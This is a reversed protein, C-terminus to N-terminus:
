RRGGKPQPPQLKQLHKTVSLIDPIRNFLKALSGTRLNEQLGSFQGPREEFYETAIAIAEVNSNRANELLLCLSNHLRLIFDSLRYHFQRYISKTVAELSHAEDIALMPKTIVYPYVGFMELCSNPVDKFQEKFEELERVSFFASPQEQAYISLHYNAELWAPEKKHINYTITALAQNVVEIESLLSSSKELYTQDLDGSTSRAMGMTYETCVLQLLLIFRVEQQEINSLSSSIPQIMRDRVMAVYLLFLSCKFEDFEEPCMVNVMNFLWSNGSDVLIRALEQDIDAWYLYNEFTITTYFDPLLKYIDKFVKGEDNAQLIGQVRSSKFQVEGQSSLDNIGTHFYIDLLEEAEIRSISVEASESYLKQDIFQNIPLKHIGVNQRSASSSSEKVAKLAEYVEESIGNLTLDEQANNPTFNFM